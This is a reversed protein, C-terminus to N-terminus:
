AELAEPIVDLADRAKQEAHRRAREVAHFREALAQQIGLDFSGDAKVPVQITPPKMRQLSPRFERGFRDSGAQYVAAAIYGPDIDDRLLEIRGAHDTIAFEVGAAVPVVDWDGDIGWLVSGRTFSGKSYCRAPLTGPDVAAFPTRVNASYLPVEGHMVSQRLASKTVRQGITLRFIAADDLSVARKAAIEETPDALQSLEREIAEIGARLDALREILEIPTASTRSAVHGLEELEDPAWWHDVVWSDADAFASFPQIRCRRDGAPPTYLAPNGSFLRFQQAMHPLDNDPIPFRRADRTEGVEGILYTFVPNTQRRKVDTKKRLALIYTKKATTYFTDKPLSVLAEIECVDMLLNRLPVDGHRFLLGDPVVVFARGGPKLGKVVLQMFLGEIGMSPAKYYDAHQQDRALIRKQQNTGSVVYPPNSLVLDFADTPVSALSGSIHRDMSAFTENLAVALRPVAGVPDEELLDSLHILMNAKALIITKQDRDMGHYSLTPGGRFDTPRKNILPELIFGGVGCAPDCVKAGPPLQEIASMEVMAKVVNRPTFYQGWNKQSITNRLFREFIRSKFEPSIRRLSGFNEFDQVMEAFLPGHDSNAPDLVTGNIVSTGDVSEPFLDKVAPRVHDFYYRLIEEDHQKRVSPFDVPVGARHTLVGLDSLFKFILVEVFTSLCADPNAGSALWVTQWVKDALVTPNAAGPTSLKGTAPDVTDEILAIVRHVARRAAEDHLDAPHDLLFGDDREIVDYGGDARVYGWTTDAGDTVAMLSSGLNLCYVEATKDMVSKRKSGTDLAGVDKREVVLKIVPSAGRRDVVLADPKRSGVKGYQRKPVIGNKALQNITVGGIVFSEYPGASDGTAVGGSTLYGASRLEESVREEGDM